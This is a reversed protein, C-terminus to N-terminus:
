AMLMATEDLILFRGHAKAGKEGGAQAGDQKVGRGREGGFVTDDGGLCQQLGHAVVLHDHLRHLWISAVM